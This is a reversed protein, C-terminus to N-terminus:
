NDQEKERQITEEWISRLGDVTDYTMRRELLLCSGKEGESDFEFSRKELFSKQSLRITLFKSKPTLCIQRQFRPREKAMKIGKLWDNSQELGQWRRYFLSLSCQVSLKHIHFSM